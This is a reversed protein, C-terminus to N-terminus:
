RGQVHFEDTSLSGGGNRERRELVMPVRDDPYLVFGHLKPSPVKRSLPRFRYEGLATGLVIKMEYIALSAGLCKRVGGGFPLYEHSGPKKELFREPKFRGPEPYVAESHHAETVSVAAAMGPELQVPGVRCPAIIRRPVINLVPSIRLTEQCAAELYDLKAYDTPAPDPGLAEIEALVRALCHPQRHLWFFVWALSISTTEYGAFILTMLQDHIMDDGSDGGPEILRSLTDPGTPGSRRRAAIDERLMASIRAQNRATARWPGLGLFLHRFPALFFVVASDTADISEVIARYQAVRQEALEGLSMQIMLEILLGRMVELARFPVGPEVRGLHARTLRQVAPALAPLNDGHLLPTLLKRYRLHKDGGVLFISDPGLLPSLMEKVYPEHCDGRLAFFEKIENPHTFIVMDGFLLRLLFSDGYKRRFDKVLRDSDRLYRFTNLLASERHGPLPPAPSDLPSSNM